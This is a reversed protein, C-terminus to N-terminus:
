GIRDNLIALMKNFEEKNHFKEKIYEKDKEDLVYPTRGVHYGSCEYCKYPVVEHITKFSMNVICANRFADEVTLFRKKPKDILKGNSMVRTTHKNRGSKVNVNLPRKMRKWCELEKM